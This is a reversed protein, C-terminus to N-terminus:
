DRLFDTHLIFLFSCSSAHNPSLHTVRCGLVCKSVLRTVKSVRDGDDYFIDATESPSGSEACVLSVPMDCASLLLREFSIMIVHDDPAELKDCITGLGEQHWLTVFGAYDSTIVIDLNHKVEEFQVQLPPCNVYIVYLQNTTSLYKLPKDRTVYKGLEM